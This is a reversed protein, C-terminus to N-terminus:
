RVTQPSRSESRGDGALKQPFLFQNFWEIIRNFCDIQDEYSEIVHNEGAYRVYTARKGLRRLGVFVQDALFPAVNTDKTGHIILLPTEVRDLYFVPSNALYAGASEWPTGPIRFQGNGQELIGIGLSSGSQDMEGYLGLLDGFGAIMVAAKFRLTQVILALTSYGGWSTGMVGIREPDAIGMDITKNIGSLVNKALDAMMTKGTLRLDPMFVAYGRSALLQKNPFFDEGCLGFRTICPSFTGPYVQVILPYRKGQQYGSPLLLAGQVIEGDDNLWRLLRGEGMPYRSLSPNISTLQRTKTFTSDSIFYDSAHAIDEVAYVIWHGDNSGMVRDLDYSKNESQLKNWAGTLLDIRYFGSERTRDDITSVLISQEGDTSSLRDGNSSRVITYMKQGPITAVERSHGDRASVMWLSYTSTVFFLSEGSSNWVPRQHLPSFAPHIDNTAKRRPGGGTPVIFCEGNTDAGAVVYALSTGAPSWSASFDHFNRSIGRDIVRSEGDPNALLLDFVERYVEGRYMGKMNAFALRSGDPSWSYWVPSFEGRIRREANGAINIIALDAREAQTYEDRVLAPPESTSHDVHSLDASVYISTHVSAGVAAPVLFTPGSASADAVGDDSKEPILKTTIMRSDPSWLPVQWPDLVRVISQSLCRISKTSIDYLWVRAHGDRDSYFALWKSDPSWSVGWNSGNARTVNESKGSATNTIWVDTGAASSPAGTSLFLGISKQNSRSRLPSRLVYALWKGDPALDPAFDDFRLTQLITEPPLYPKGDQALGISCAKLLFVVFMLLFRRQTEM